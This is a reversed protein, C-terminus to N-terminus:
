AHSSNDFRQPDLNRLNELELLGSQLAQLAAEDFMSHDDGVIRLASQHIGIRQMHERVSDLPLGDDTASHLVIIPGLILPPSSIWHLAPAVLLRPVMKDAISLAVAAGRSYGVIIRPPELHFAQEAIAVSQPFDLDPLMPATVHYGLGRIFTPKFGEPNCGMGDLFLVRFHSNVIGGEPSPTQGTM